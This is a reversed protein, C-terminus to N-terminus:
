DARAIVGLSIRSRFPMMGLLEIGTPKSNIDVVIRDSSSVYRLKM